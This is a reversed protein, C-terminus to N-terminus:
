VYRLCSPVRLMREGECLGLLILLVIELMGSKTLIKTKEANEASAHALEFWLVMADLLIHPTAKLLSKLM